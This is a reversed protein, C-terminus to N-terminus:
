PLPKVRINRYHIVSEPDHGQIAFTGSGILRGAFERPRQASEPETYDVILKDNISITVHKGVVKIHYRMWEGDKAPAEKNDSIGYLGGGKRWDSHTNNVQVEYGKAPWGDNQYQTHFYIGSNAKPKTMVEAQFEFNKFDHNAVDGVYFMHARPGDVILEGNEVRFTQPNENVKWGDLNKGNFITVWGGSSGTACASLGFVAAACLTLVIKKM